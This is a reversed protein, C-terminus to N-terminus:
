FCNLGLIIEEVVEKIWRYAMTKVIAKSSTGHVMFYLSIGVKQELLLGRIDQYNVKSVYKVLSYLKVEGM